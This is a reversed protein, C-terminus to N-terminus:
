MPAPGGAWKEAINGVIPMKVHKQNYGQVCLYIILVLTALPLLTYVLLGILTILIGGTPDVFLFLTFVISLGIYLVVLGIGMLLSQAGHFRVEPHRQTLFVILGGLGLFLYSLLNAVPPQLGADQVPPQHGMGGPQGPPPAQQQYGPQQAPPPPTGGGYPDQGQHTM